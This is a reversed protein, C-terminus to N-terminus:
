VDLGNFPLSFWLENHQKWFRIRALRMEEAINQADDDTMLGETHYMIRDVVETPIRIDLSEEMARRIWSMRQPPIRSTSLVEGGIEDGRDGGIEPDVLAFTVLTLSGEKAPDKLHVETFRHQYVNPFAVAHGKRLSASGLFQHSPAGISLGWTRITAGEDDYLCGVPARVPM